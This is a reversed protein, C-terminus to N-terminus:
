DGKHADVICRALPLTIDESPELDNNDVCNIVAQTNLPFMDLNIAMGNVAMKKEDQTLTKWDSVQLNLLETLRDPDVANDELTTILEDYAGAANAQSVIIFLATLLLIRM